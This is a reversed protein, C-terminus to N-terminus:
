SFLNRFFALISSFFSTSETATAQGVVPITPEEIVEEKEEVPEKIEPIVEQEEVVPELIEAAAAKGIVYHGLETSTAEFYLYGRDEITPTTVLENGNAYLKVDYVDLGLQRLRTEQLKITLTISSVPVDGKVSFKSYVTGDFHITEDNEIVFSQQKVTDSFYVQASHPGDVNRIEFELSEGANIYSVPQVALGTVSPNDYTLIIVASFLILVGVAVWFVGLKEEKKKGMESFLDRSTYLNITLSFTPTCPNSGQVDLDETDSSIGLARKEKDPFSL